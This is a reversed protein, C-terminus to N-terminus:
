TNLLRHGDLLQDKVNLGHPCASNCYGSCSACNLPKQNKDLLAYHELANKEQGYDEYYMKYRMIDSVSVKDPCSSECKNCSLRCYERDVEKQYKKLIALDTRNLTKGSAAVYEEAHSFSRMSSVVCDINRNDLVWSIAAHPYTMKEKIFSKLNGQRGGALTKMAITGIGRKHLETILPEIEKGEMHNYIFMCVQVFDKFEPKLCDKLMVKANHTSFGSFRLKGDKKLRNM